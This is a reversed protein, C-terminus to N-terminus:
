SDEKVTSSLLFIVGGLAVIVLLAIRLSSLHAIFGIFPPGLLFGTFGIASVTALAAAPALSRSKGAIMYAIPIVSSVGLGVLVYGAIVAVPVPWAIALGLGAAILLGSVM